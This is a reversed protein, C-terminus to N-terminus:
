ICIVCTYSTEINYMLYATVIIFLLVIYDINLKVNRLSKERQSTGIILDIKGTGIM